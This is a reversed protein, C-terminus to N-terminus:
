EMEAEVTVRYRVSSLVFLFIHWKFYSWCKRFGKREVEEGM